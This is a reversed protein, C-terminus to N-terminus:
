FSRFALLMIFVKNVIKEQLGIIILKKITLDFDFFGNLYRM